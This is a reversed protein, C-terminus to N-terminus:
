RIHVFLSVLQSEVYELFILIMVSRDSAFVSMVRCLKLYCFMSIHEGKASYCNQDFVLVVCSIWLNIWHTQWKSFHNIIWLEMKIDFVSNKIAALPLKWLTHCSGTKDGQIRTWVVWLSCRASVYSGQSWWIQRRQNASIINECCLKCTVSLLLWSSTAAAASTSPEERLTWVLSTVRATANKYTCFHHPM